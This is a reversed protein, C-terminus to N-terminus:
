QGPLGPIPPLQVGLSEAAQRQRLLVEYQQEVPISPAQHVVTNADVRLPRSPFNLSPATTTPAPPLVSSSPVFGGASGQGSQAAARSNSRSFVVPEAANNAPPRDSPSGAAPIIVSNNARQPQNGAPPVPVGGPKGGAAPQAPGKMGHDKFNLTAEVGGNVVRVTKRKVNIEKVELADGMRVRGRKPDDTLSPYLFQGKSDPDPVILYAWRVGKIEGIGALKVDTKVPEPPPPANTPPPPPPLPDKLAFANRAVIARYPNTLPLNDVPSEARELAEEAVASGALGLM